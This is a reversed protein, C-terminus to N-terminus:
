RRKGIQFSLYGNIFVPTNNEIIMIPVRRTFADIMLGIEFAKVYQDFAGMSFHAALRAHVGPIISIKDFGKFFSAPGVIKSDDLFVAANEETYRETSVYDTHGDDKLMSL